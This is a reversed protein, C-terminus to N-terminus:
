SGGLYFCATRNGDAGNNYDEFRAHSGVILYNRVSVDTATVGASTARLMVTEHETGKERIVSMGSEDLSNTMDSGPSQITVATGDVKLGLGSELRSVGQAQLQTVQLCIGEATQEVKSISESMGELGSQTQSVRTVIGDVNLELAALRGDAATHEAQLGEVDTRLKLVRGALSHYARNNVATTSDRRPSGTCELTDRQGTQRRSMVYMTVPKQNGDSLQLIAGPGLRLDAPLQLKCPSYTVGQLNEYLTKAVGSLTRADASALLPNATIIYANGEAASDPYVTGTDEETQRLQVKEIPAVQYDEYRFGNQYYWLDEVAVPLTFSVNGAGDDYVTISDSLFSGDAVTLDEYGITLNGQAYSVTGTPTYWGMEINGDATARTFRGAAEGAWRILQRGTVGQVTFKQVPFSGNPIQENVFLLGCAQCVKYVFDGLSYPWADLEALWQTLDQDLLSVRDYATLKMTNASSRTPKETRFIGVRYLQGQENERYLTFEAGAPLTFGGGPTILTIEAMAACVSGLSLEQQDNVSQTLTLSQIANTGTVGSSLQTGDEFVMITKLM